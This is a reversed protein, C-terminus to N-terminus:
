ILIWKKKFAFVCYLTIAEWEERSLTGLRPTRNPRDELLFLPENVVKSKIINEFKKRIYNTDERNEDCDEKLKELCQKAHLYNDPVNDGALPTGQNPPFQEM